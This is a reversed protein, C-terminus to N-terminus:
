EVILLQALTTCVGQFVQAAFGVLSYKELIQESTEKPLALLREFEGSWDYDDNLQELSAQLSPQEATTPAPANSSRRAIYAAYVSDKRLAGASLSGTYAANTAM